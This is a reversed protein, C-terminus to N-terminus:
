NKLHQGTKLTYHIREQTKAHMVLATFTDLERTLLVEESVHAQGDACFVKAIKNAIDVDYDSAEPHQQQYAQMLQAHMSADLLLMSEPKAPPTYESPILAKAQSLIDQNDTVIDSSKLYGYAQAQGADASVKGAALQLFFQELKESTDSSQNARLIMEKTGGGCPLLGISAEVLGIQSHQDAIAQHCHMAIECGGGLAYGRVAAVIPIPSYRCALSTTQFNGLYNRIGAVNDADAMQCVHPLDAGVCFFKENPQWIVLGKLGQKKAVHIAEQIGNLVLESGCNVKSLFSLIGIEDGDTYLHVAQEKQLLTHM